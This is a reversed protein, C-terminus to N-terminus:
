RRRDAEVRAMLEMLRLVDRKETAQTFERYLTDVNVVIREADRWHAYEGLAIDLAAEEANLGAEFRMRAERTIYDLYDKVRRVGAKDTSPGHGPIIVDVDMALIRECGSIWNSVPGAWMIPMTDIFLIDGTFVTRRTPAHVLVDGQTHAPGIQVLEVPTDGVNLAMHGTFTRTPLRQAMRDTDFRGFSRLLYDGVMGLKPAMTMLEAMEEPTTQLMERAAAESAIIEANTVLRNGFTHDGDAHTNVLTSIDERALGTADRMEDLMTLTLSEDFLTDVLLSADGDVILGSNSLSWGGDPQFYAFVGDGVAQLGRTYPFSRM